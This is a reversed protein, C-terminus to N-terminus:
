AKAGKWANYDILYQDIQRICEKLEPSGAKSLQGYVDPMKKRIEALSKMALDGDTFPIYELAKIPKIPEKLATKQDGQGNIDGSSKSRKNPTKVTNLPLEEPAEEIQNIMANAVEEASAVSMGFGFGAMGLARGVASTECNEIFSTKNIYSSSEKEQAFGTGLIKGEGDKITAKMTVIGQELAYIETLIAGDPYVSRFAKIREPVVAYGKGKVEITKIAENAIALQEFTVM